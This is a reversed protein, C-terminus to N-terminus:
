KKIKKEIYKSIQKGYYRLMNELKNMYKKKQKKNYSLKKNRSFTPINNISNVYNVQKIKYRKKTYNM